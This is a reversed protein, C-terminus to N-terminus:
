RAPCDTLCSLAGVLELEAITEHQEWQELLQHDHSYLGAKVTVNTGGLQVLNECGVTLTATPSTSTEYFNGLNFHIHGQRGDDTDPAPGAPDVFEFNEVYTIFMQEVSCTAEDITLQNEGTPFLMEIFPEDVIPDPPACAVVIAAVSAAVSLRPARVAALDARPSPRM